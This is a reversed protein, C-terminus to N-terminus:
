SRKPNRIGRSVFRTLPALVKYTKMRLNLMPDFELTDQDRLYDCVDAYLENWLVPGVGVGALMKPVDGLLIEHQEGALDKHEYLLGTGTCGIKRYLPMLKSTASGLLWRRKSQAITLILHKVLAYFLDAGRYAPHTCVRTVEVMEDKRPFKDPLKIFQEHETPDEPDHFM